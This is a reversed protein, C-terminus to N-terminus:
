TCAVRGKGAAGVRPPDFSYAIGAGQALPLSRRYLTAVHTGGEFTGEGTDMDVDVLTGGRYVEVRFRRPGLCEVTHYTCGTM